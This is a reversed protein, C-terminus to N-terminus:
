SRFLLQGDQSYAAGELLAQGVGQARTGGRERRWEGHYARLM